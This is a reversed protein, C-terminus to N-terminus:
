VGISKSRKLTILKHTSNSVFTLFSCDLMGEGGLAHYSPSNPGCTWRLGIATAPDCGRAARLPEHGASLSPAAVPAADGDRAVPPPRHRVLMSAAGAIARGRGRAAPPPGHGVLMSATGAAAPGRGGIVNALAPDALNACM